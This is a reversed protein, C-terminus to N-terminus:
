LFYLNGAVARSNVFKIEQGAQYVALKLVVQASILNLVSKFASEPM